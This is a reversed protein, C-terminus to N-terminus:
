GTKKTPRVAKVPKAKPAPKTPLASVAVGEKAPKAKAVKGTKASVRKLRAMVTEVQLGLGDVLHTLGDVRSDVALVAAAAQHAVAEADGAKESLKASRSALGSEFGALGERLHAKAVDEGERAFAAQTREALATLRKEDSGRELLEFGESAGLGLAGGLIGGLWRPWELGEFGLVGGGAAAGAILVGRGIRRPWNSRLRCRAPEAKKEAKEVSIKEQM